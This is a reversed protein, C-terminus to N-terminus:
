DHTSPVRVPTAAAYTDKVPGVGQCGIPQYRATAGSTTSVKLNLLSHTDHTVSVRDGLTGCAREGDWQSVSPLCKEFQM